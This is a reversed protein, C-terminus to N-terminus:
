VRALQSCGTKQGGVTWRGADWLRSGDPGPIWRFRSPKVVSFHRACMELAKVKDWLKIEVTQDQAKDGATLNETRVKVSAICARTDADMDAIKRLTFTRNKGHTKEFLQLPDMLAIRRLEQEVRAITLKNKSGKPRGPGATRKLGSM